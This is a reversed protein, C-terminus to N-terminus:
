AGQVAQRDVSVPGVAEPHPHGGLCYCRLFVNRHGLMLFIKNGTQQVVEALHGQVVTKGFFVPLGECQSVKLLAREIFGLLGHQPKVMGLDALFNGFFPLEGIGDALSDGIM